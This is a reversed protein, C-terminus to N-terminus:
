VNALRFNLRFVSRGEAENVVLATQHADFGPPDVGGQQLFEVAGVLGPRQVVKIVPHREMSARVTARDRTVVAGPDASNTATKTGFPSETGIASPTSIRESASRAYRIKGRPLSSKTTPLRSTVCILPRVM